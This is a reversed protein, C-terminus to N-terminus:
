AGAVLHDGTTVAAAADPSWADAGILAALREFRNIALGGVVIRPREDGLQRTIRAVIDKVVRLHQVFSVSLGLLDPRWNEIHGVLSATPVNAGLFQVDWGDLQFADAVMQLGVAHDNGQVCALLVKRGNFPLAESKLLGHTMAMRAIATSLHEQAVSVQNNQWKQGIRYLAPQVIHMEANVLGRGAELARDIIDQAGRRNGTLLQAEFAECEPWAQPASAEAVDPAPGLRLFEARSVHLAQAVVRADAADMNLTFFEALWDLSLVVHEVPINRAGLVGALWRLYEVMPDPVGFELVPQLFELHFALDERCAERGASGFQAYIAEHETHFRETVASIAPQRLESFRQLGTAGLISLATTV